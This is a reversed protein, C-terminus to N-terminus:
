NTNLHETVLYKQGAIEMIGTPKHIPHIAEQRFTQGRLKACQNEQPWYSLYYCTPTPNQLEHKLRHNLVLVDTNLQNLTQLSKVASKVNM